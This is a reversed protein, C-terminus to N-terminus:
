VGLGTPIWIVCCTLFDSKCIYRKDVLTVRIRLENSIDPSSAIETIPVLRTTECFVVKERHWLWTKEVQSGRDINVFIWSKNDAPIEGSKM